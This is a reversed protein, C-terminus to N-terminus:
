GEIRDARFTGTKRPVPGAGTNFLIDGHVTGDDKSGRLGTAGLRQTDEWLEITTSDIVRGEFAIVEEGTHLQGNMQSDTRRLVLTGSAVQTGNLDFAAYSYTGSIETGTGLDECSILFPLFGMITILLFM